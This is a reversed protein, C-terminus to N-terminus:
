KSRLSADRTPVGSAGASGAVIASVAFLSNSAATLCVPQAVGNIASFSSKPAPVCVGHVGPFARYRAFTSASRVWSVARPACVYRSM